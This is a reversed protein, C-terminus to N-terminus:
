LKRNEKEQQTKKDHCDDCLCQLNDKVCFLRSIFNDWTTFGEKVDVVPQIHDVAIKSLPFEKKCKACKYHQAMRGSLKNVKKKTKAENLVENRNPFRLTGHRLLSVVWGKFKADTWSSVPSKLM